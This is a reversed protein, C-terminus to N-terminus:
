SCGTTGGCVPCLHCVGIQINMEYGCTPCVATKNFYVIEEKPPATIATVISKTLIDISDQLSGETPELSNDFAIGSPSQDIKSKSNLPQSVKCGDRYVSVCKLKFDWAMKYIREVDEVTADNPLNITKSIGGSLFPQVAALMLLHGQPSIENACAFIDQNPTIVFDCGQITGNEIIHNLIKEKVHNDINFNNLAREVAQNVIKMQGGGALDKYKVLAFDPEIGTTQADMLFSITGTPALLTVQANRYADFSYAENWIFRAEKMLALERIELNQASSLKYKKIHQRIVKDMALKNKEYAPFAGLKEALEGSTFYAQATILATIDTAVNRAYDSDYPVGLVMLLAGLNTYGLGLTRYQLSKRAIKESPYGAMSISIDLVATWLATAQKFGEIDFVSEENLFSLLNLSALNCATDHLWLYESCPNCASIKEDEACTNWNNITDGFFIGPDGCKWAAEAIARLVARAEVERPPMGTRPYLFWAENRGVRRMFEDSINISNNANQASITTYAPGEFSMGYIPYSADRAHLLQSGEILAHAKQEEEVKWNVFELLDPHDDDLIVMRAARRTTGGSKIAGGVADGIKLFSLLGSSYGGGSLPENKGRIASYNCGSGSGYKFVRAEKAWLDMIGNEGVLKDEVRNIFCAHIQPHQYSNGIERITQDDALAYHENNATGEIGYAWYLGTNFFQPSNPAAMQMFLMYSLEDYFITADFESKFYGHKFGTYCWHGVLRHAVERFDTEGEFVAHEEPISRQFFYPIDAEFIRVTKHPVGVKRFYKQALINVATQSWFDPVLVSDQHFVVEGNPKAIHATRKVFKIGYDKLPFNRKTFYRSYLKTGATATLDVFEVNEHLM